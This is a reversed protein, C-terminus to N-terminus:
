YYSATFISGTSDLLRPLFLLVLNYGVQMYDFVGSQEEFSKEISQKIASSKNAKLYRQNPQGTFKLGGPILRCKSNFHLM